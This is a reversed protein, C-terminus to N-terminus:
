RPPSREPDPGSGGPGRPRLPPSPGYLDTRLFLGLFTALGGVAVVLGAALSGVLTQVGPASAPEGATGTASVVITGAPAGTTEAAVFYPCEPTGPSSWAGRAVGTWSQVSGNTSCGAADCRPPAVAYLTVSVPVDAQWSLRLTAGTGNEGWLPASLAVRGSQVSLITTSDHHDSVTPPPILFLTALAAAGVVLFCVGVLVLGSRV